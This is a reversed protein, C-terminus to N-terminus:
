TVRSFNAKKLDLLNLAAMLVGKRVQKINIRNSAFKACNVKFILKTCLKKNFIHNQSFSSKMLFSPMLGFQSKTFRLLSQFHLFRVSILWLYIKHYTELNYSCCFQIKTNIWRQTIM